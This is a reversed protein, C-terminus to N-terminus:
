LDIVNLPSPSNIRTLSRLAILCDNDAKPFDRSWGGGFFRYGYVNSNGFGSTYQLRSWYFESPVNPGNSYSYRGFRQFAALQLTFLGVCLSFLLPLASVSRLLRMRYNAYCFPPLMELPPASAARRKPITSRFHVSGRSYVCLTLLATGHDPSPVPRRCSGYDAQAASTPALRLSKFACTCGFEM